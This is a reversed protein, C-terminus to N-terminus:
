CEANNQDLMYRSGPISSSCPPSNKVISLPSELDRTITLSYLVTHSFAVLEKVTIFLRFYLHPISILCDPAPLPGIHHLVSNEPLNTVDSNKELHQGSHVQHHNQYSPRQAGCPWPRTVAIPAKPLYRIIKDQGLTSDSNFTNASYQVRTAPNFSSVRM